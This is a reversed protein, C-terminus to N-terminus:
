TKLEPWLRFDVQLAEILNKIMVSANNVLGRNIQMRYKGGMLTM